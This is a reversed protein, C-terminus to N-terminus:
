YRIVAYAGQGGNTVFALNGNADVSAPIIEFLGGESVRVVAYTAGAQVFNKPLALRMEIAGTKPLLSYKGATMKGFEINIMPGVAANQTAAVANLVAAAAPSKKATLDYVKTYAKENSALGFASAITAAPTAVASGNVSKATYVGPTSTTVGGASSTTAVEAVSESTTSETSTSTSSSTNTETAAYAGACPAVVLAVTLSAALVRKMRNLM